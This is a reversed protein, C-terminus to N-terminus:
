HGIKQSIADTMGGKAKLRASIRDQIKFQESTDGSPLFRYWRALQEHTAKEVEEMTPFDPRHHQRQLQEAM